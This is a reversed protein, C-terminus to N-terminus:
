EEAQLFALAWFIVTLNAAVVFSVILLARGLEWLWRYDTEHEQEAAPLPLSPLDCNSFRERLRPPLNDWWETSGTGGQSNRMVM